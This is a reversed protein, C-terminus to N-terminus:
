MGCWKSLFANFAQQKSCMECLVILGQFNRKKCPVFKRDIHLYKSYIMSLRSSSSQTGIKM